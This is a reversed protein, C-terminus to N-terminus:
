QKFCLCRKFANKINKFKFIERSTSRDRQYSNNISAPLVASYSQHLHPEDIDHVESNVNSISSIASFDSPQRDNNNGWIQEGRQSLNTEDGGYLEFYGGIFSNIEDFNQTTSEGVENQNINNLVSRESM